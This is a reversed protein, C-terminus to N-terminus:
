SGIAKCIEGFTTVLVPSEDPDESDLLDPEIICVLSANIVIRKGNTKRVRIFKM